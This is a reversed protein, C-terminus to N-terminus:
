GKFPGSEICGGGEGSPLFIAGAGGTSGNHQVFSGDSGMSTDSGDFVPSNRLDDQHKFWNWYPQHGTYGCEERLAKEYGHVYYRHWSLFNGTGHITLTQNIHQAVFDDYRTKAGPVLKPDSQSPSDFMCQVASIYAKREKASMHDRFYKNSTAAEACPFFM